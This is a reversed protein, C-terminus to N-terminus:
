RGEIRCRIAPGVCGADKLTGAHLPALAGSAHSSRFARLTHEHTTFLNCFDVLTVERNLSARCGM